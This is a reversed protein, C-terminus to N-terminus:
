SSTEFNFTKKARIWVRGALLFCLVAYYLYCAWLPFSSIKVAAFPLSATLKVVFIFWSLVPYLLGALFLTLINVLKFTLLNEFTELLFSTLTVVFGGGMLFPISWGVLINTIPAIFSMNHFNHLIVPLTFIQAALTIKLDTLLLNYVSSVIKKSRNKKDQEVLTMIGFTALFSLQFGIDFVLEPKVVIMVIASGLLAVIAYNKRGTVLALLSLSGMIGARVVSASPGVFFIFGVISIISLLSANRKGLGGFMVSLFTVLMSINTGSLAIIHLTGTQQLDDYFDKSMQAKTGVLIGSLLSAQPEALISKIRTDVPNAPANLRIYAPEYPKVSKAPQSYSFIRVLLATIILFWVIIQLKDPSAPDARPPFNLILKFNM